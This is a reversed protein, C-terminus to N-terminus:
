ASKQLVGLTKRLDKIRADVDDYDQQLAEIIDDPAGEDYAERLNQVYSAREELLAELVTNM